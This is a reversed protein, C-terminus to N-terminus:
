DQSKFFQISVSLKTAICHLMDFNWDFRPRKLVTAITINPNASVYDRYTFVKYTKNPIFDQRDFGIRETMSYKVNKRNKQFENFIHESYLDNLLESDFKIYQRWINFMDLYTDWTAPYKSIDWTKLYNM